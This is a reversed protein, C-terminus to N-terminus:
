LTEVSVQGLCHHYFPLNKLFHTKTYISLIFTPSYRIDFESESGDLANLFITHATITNIFISRYFFSLMLLVVIGVNLLIMLLCTYSFTHYM